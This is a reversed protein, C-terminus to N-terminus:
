EETIFPVACNMCLTRNSRQETKCLPCVIKDKDSKIPEVPSHNKNENPKVPTSNRNIISIQREVGDQNVEATSEGNEKSINNFVEKTKPNHTFEEIFGKTVKTYDWDSMKHAILSVNDFFECFMMSVFLEVVAIACGIGAHLLFVSMDHEVRSYYNYRAENWGNIISYVVIVGCGIIALIRYWKVWKSTGEM